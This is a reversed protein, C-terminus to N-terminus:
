TSAILAVGGLAVAVGARQARTLREGLLMHALLVTVVPYLSGLVSVLSLLGHGSAFAFLSNAAVDLLGVAAVPVLDRRDVRVSARFVIAGAALCTLSGVRAGVLTSLADGQRSGLGLFYVFLGLALASGVALLVARSRERSESRREEASALVAGALAAGAGAVALASPREGSALSIVFPVVAGCAAIPSLVSMTGLSLARYFAALGVGGGVGALLGLAFSRGALDGRIGIAVLLAVFGAGQSILTVGFTPLRRTLLGGSFDAIGWVISSGLALVLALVSVAV